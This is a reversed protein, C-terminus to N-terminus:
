ALLDTNVDRRLEGEDDAKKDILADVEAPKGVPLETRERQSVEGQKETTEGIKKDPGFAFPSEKMMYYTTYGAIPLALLGAIAPTAYMKKNMMESWLRWARETLRNGSESGQPAASTNQLDYASLAADLARERAGDRPTPVPGNRLLDFEDNAM